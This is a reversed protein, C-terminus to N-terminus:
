RNARAERRAAAEADRRDLYARIAADRKARAAILRPKVAEWAARYKDRWTGPGPDHSAAMRAERQCERDVRHAEDRAEDCERKLDALTKMPKAKAARADRKRQIDKERWRALEEPTAHKPKTM